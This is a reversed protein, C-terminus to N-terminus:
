YIIAINFKSKNFQNVILYEIKKWDFVQKLNKKFIKSQKQKLTIILYSNLKLYPYSYYKSNAMM